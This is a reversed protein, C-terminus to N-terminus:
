VSGPVEFHSAGGPRFRWTKTAGLSAEDLITSGTSKKMSAASVLGTTTDVDVAVVGTVTLHQKRAAYPYVPPSMSLAHYRSEWPWHIERPPGVDGEASAFGCIALFAVLICARLM